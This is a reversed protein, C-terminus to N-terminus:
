PTRLRVPVLIVLSDDSVIIVATIAIVITEHERELMRNLFIECFIM